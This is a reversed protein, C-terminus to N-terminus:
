GISTSQCHSITLKAIVLMAFKCLGDANASISTVDTLFSDPHPRPFGGGCIYFNVEWIFQLKEVNLKLHDITLM